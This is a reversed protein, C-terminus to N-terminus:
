TLLARTGTILLWIGITNLVFTLMIFQWKKIKYASLLPIGIEDPLPSAIILAGIVPTLWLFYKSHFIHSVLSHKFRDLFPELEIFVQDKFFSYILFDGIVSGFGALLALQVTHLSESLDYLVLLAPAATFTMVSFIGAVVAGVYGWEGLSLLALKVTPNQSIILFIVLSIGLLTLNKYRWHFHKKEFWM